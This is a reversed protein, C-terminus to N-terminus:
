YDCAFEEVYIVDQVVLEESSYEYGESCSCEEESAFTFFLGKRVM